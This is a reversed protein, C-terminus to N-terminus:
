LAGCHRAQLGADSGPEQRTGEPFIVVQRGMEKHRLAQKVMHKLAAAGKSRDVVIMDLKQAYWGYIPMALLEKKLVVSPDELYATFFVTEWMAQHKSAILIPGEPLKELGIAEHDLGCITKLGWLTARSWRKLGLVIAPRGYIVFVPLYLLGLLAMLGYIWFMFVLSRFVTM